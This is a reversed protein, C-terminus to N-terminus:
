IFSLLNTKRQRSHCLYVKECIVETDQSQDAPIYQQKPLSYNVPSQKSSKLNGGSM